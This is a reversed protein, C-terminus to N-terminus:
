NKKVSIAYLTYIKYKSVIIWFPGSIFVDLFFNFTLTLSCLSLYNLDIMVGKMSQPTVILTGFIKSKKYNRNQQARLSFFSCVSCTSKELKTHLISKLKYIIFDAFRNKFKVVHVSCIMFLPMVQFFLISINRNQNHFYRIQKTVACKSFNCM